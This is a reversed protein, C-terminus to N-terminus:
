DDDHKRHKGSITRVSLVDGNINKNVKVRDGVKIDATNVPAGALDVTQTRFFNAVTISKNGVGTVVGHVEFMADAGASLTGVLAVLVVAGYVKKKHALLTNKVQTFLINRM